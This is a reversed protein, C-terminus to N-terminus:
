KDRGSRNQEANWQEDPPPSPTPDEAEETGDRREPLPQHAVKPHLREDLDPNHSRERDHTTEMTM